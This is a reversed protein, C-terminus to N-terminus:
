PRNKQFIDLYLFIARYYGGVPYKQDTTVEFIFNWSKTILLIWNKESCDKRYIYLFFSMERYNALHLTKKYEKAKFIYHFLTM